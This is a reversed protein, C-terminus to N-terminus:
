VICKYFICLIYVISIWNKCPLFFLTLKTFLIPFFVFFYQNLILILIYNSFFTLILLHPQGDVYVRINTLISTTSILSAFNNSIIFNNIRPKIVMVIMANAKIIAKTIIILLYYFLGDAKALSPNNLDFFKTLWM